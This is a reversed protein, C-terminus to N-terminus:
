RGKLAAVPAAAANNFEQSHYEVADKTLDFYAEELTTTLPTLEYVLVSNELAIRAIQHTNVGSVELTENESSGVLVGEGSLLQSLRTVDPTRVRVKAQQTGALIQAIPADAIIQGRGIVILHDATQAMESMLHSSLFVTKGLGALHKALNRVWLVGEPDLGNVPEDLILTQPDGLLASAIGLRQGMGLSFGGARKKAVSTLGTMEIVENVRKTPINHTAAMALLHNYASRSTHVAKADLLAGVQHLPDHHDVYRKGNVTVTGSTPKDLGVIMRMTTSKGAGNPGLFGTVMGPKVTFTVGGVATKAGYHKALNVAEIM